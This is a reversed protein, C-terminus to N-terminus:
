PLEGLAMMRIATVKIFGAQEKTMVYAPDCSVALMSLWGERETMTKEAKRMSEDDFAIIPDLSAESIRRAQAQMRPPIWRCLYGVVQEPTLGVKAFEPGHDPYEDYGAALV